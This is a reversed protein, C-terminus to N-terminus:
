HWRKPYIIKNSILLVVQLLILLVDLFPVFLFLDKEKLKYSAKGITLTYFITRFVFVSIVIESKIGLVLLIILLILFLLHSLGQIALLAKTKFSYFSSTSYHRRKQIFWESWSSPAESVTFSDESFVIKTNRKTANSNIFLDDDGSAVDMHSYFGKAKCFLEKKYSLNRGVGMYPTFLKAFSFYNSATLVTEFRVLKNLLGKQKKYAGYGLVVETEEAYVNVMSSIWEDSVPICDADTFLLIDNKAKKIGLTLAFKKGRWFRDNVMVDVVEVNSNESAFTEMIELTNDRSADNVLVIEFNSYKQVRLSKLLSPLTEEENKACLIVSVADNTNTSATETATIFKWQILLYIFHIGSVLYFIYLLIEELNM